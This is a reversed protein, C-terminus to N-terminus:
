RATRAAVAAAQKAAVQRNRREMWAETSNDDRPRTPQVSGIASEVPRSEQAKLNSQATKNTELTKKLKANEAQLGRLKDAMKWARPDTADQLEEPSYGLETVAFSAVDAFRQQDWGESVLAKGTEQRAMALSTERAKAQEDLRAKEKTTLDEKAAALARKSDEESQLANTYATRYQQYSLVAPDDDPLGQLQNRWGAWDIGRLTTGRADLAGDLQQTAATARDELLVVKAHEAPLAARSEEIQQHLTQRETEFTRRQESLAQTKQRYDVDAMVRDKIEPPLKYTKGNLEIDVLGDAAVDKRRAEAGNAAEEDGSEAEGRALRAAKAAANEDDAEVRDLHETDFDDTENAAPAETAVGPASTDEAVPSTAAESM